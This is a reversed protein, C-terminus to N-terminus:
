SDGDQERAQKRPYAEIQGPEDRRGWPNNGYGLPNADHKRQNEDKEPNEVPALAAAVNNGSRGCVDLPRIAIHSV